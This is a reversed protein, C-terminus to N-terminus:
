QTRDADPSGSRTGLIAALLVVVEWLLLLVLPAVLFPVLVGVWSAAEAVSQLGPNM